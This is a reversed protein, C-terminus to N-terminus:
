AVTEPATPEQETNNAFDKYTPMKLIENRTEAPYAAINKLQDRHM